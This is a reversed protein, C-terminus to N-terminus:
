KILRVAVLYAEKKRLVLFSDNIKIEIPDGFISARIYEFEIGPIVGIEILRRTIRTDEPYKLIIGKQTATLESLRM